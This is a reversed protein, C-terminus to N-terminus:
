LVAGAVVTDKIAATKKKALLLGNDFLARCTDM